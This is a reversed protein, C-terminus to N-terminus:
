KHAFGNDVGADVLEEILEVRAADGREHHGVRLKGLLHKSTVPPTVPIGRPHWPTYRYTVSPASGM